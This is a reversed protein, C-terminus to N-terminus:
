LEFSENAAPVIAEIRLEEKIKDQLARAEDTEGQVIFVKKLHKRMAGVWKVLRPQDAHASYSGIARVHCRVAIEEGFIRMRACM